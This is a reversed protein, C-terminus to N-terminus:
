NSVMDLKEHPKKCNLRYSFLVNYILAAGSGFVVRYAVPIFYFNLLQVFPWFSYGLKLLNFYSQRIEKQVEDFSQSKLYTLTTINGALFIPASLLQDFLVKKSLLLLSKTPGFLREVLVICGRALPGVYILGAIAFRKTQDLDYKEKDQLILQSTIDGTTMFTATTLVNTILPRTHLLKRYLKLLNAM